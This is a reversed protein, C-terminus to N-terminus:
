FMIEQSKVKQIHPEYSYSVKNTFSQSFCSKKVKLRKEIFNMHIHYKILQKFDSTDNSCRVDAQSRSLMIPGILIFKVIEKDVGAM